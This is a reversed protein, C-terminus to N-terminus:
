PGCPMSGISSSAGAPASKRASIQTAQSCAASRAASSPIRTTRTRVPTTSSRLPPASSFISGGKWIPTPPGTAPPRCNMGQIWVSSRTPIMFVASSSSLQLPGTLPVAGSGPWWGRSRALGEATRDVSWREQGDWPQGQLEEVALHRLDHRTAGPHNGRPRQHQAVLEAVWLELLGQAGGEAVSSRVARADRRSPAATASRPRNDTEIIVRCPRRSLLYEATPGIRREGAPAHITSWYIVDSGVREAEEVLASGPHRTRILGTHIKIGARRAKIRASELVSRGHAEEEELGAELSLQRPVPLVYIAYVVGEEGILKAASLAGLRQRRRRLDAGARHPVRAGRLRGPARPRAIKYSRRPM